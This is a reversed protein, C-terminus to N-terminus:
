EDDIIISNVKHKFKLNIKIISEDITHCFNLKERILFM